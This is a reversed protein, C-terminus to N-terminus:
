VGAVRGYEEALTEVDRCILYVGGQVRVREAHEAQDPRIRDAGAKVEVEIHRGDALIGMIDALGRTMRYYHNGIRTCGTPTPWCYVGARRLFELAQTKLRDAPKGM